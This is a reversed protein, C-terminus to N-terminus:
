EIVEDARLQFSRSVPIGLQQAVKLNIALEIKTPQEVPLIGADEGRMVKALSNALQRFVEAPEPRLSCLVM